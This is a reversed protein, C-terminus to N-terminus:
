FLSFDTVNDSDPNYKRYLQKVTEYSMKPRRYEDVVGKNNFGRPRNLEISEMTNGDCFQWVYTGAMKGCGLYSEIAASLLASQYNETWRQAEFATVGKIGGGGFESMLMPMEGYLRRVKRSFEEFTENKTSRYWATYYNFSIVDVLDTCIDNDAHNSAYTLLRSTDLEKITSIIRKSFERTQPLSTDVENHLGWFIISPHHLDRKVMERHMGLAKQIFDENKLSEAWEPRNGWLPIEEWFLLGKEDCYDLTKKTNPYHSGRIANCNLDMIIDIDKKILEFPVSFGWDPHQEHRCIGTIIIKRGNLLIDRGSCELKRFGIRDTMDEGGFHVTVYYLNPKNIDWLKINELRINEAKKTINGNATINESYVCEGNVCVKFTDSVAKTTSVSAEVSLVASNDEPSVDYKIISSNIHCSGIERIEVHRNIGGYNYWDTYFHPITDGENITNNVRVVLEHTGKGINKAEFGFEVFPGYHHGIFLHDVYVDCENAVGEFNIFASDTSIEFDTRYWATGTYRFYGFTTNWCSPVPMKESNEPFVEYWKEETGINEPDLCFDWLKDLLTYKISNSRQFLRNM